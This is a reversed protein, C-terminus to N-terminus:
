RIEDWTMQSSKIVEEIPKGVRELLDKCMQLFQERTVKFKFDKEEMLGEVQAFCEKNASLILKVREAEKLLKNMAKANTNVDKKALKKDNFAKALHDRLRLTFELGGLTRDFGVAKIHVQPNTETYGDEKTQVLQYSAITVVTSRAGMDYFMFNQATANFEKRRFVGYNLATASNDNMLQLLKIGAM